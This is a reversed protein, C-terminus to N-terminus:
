SALECRICVNLRLVFARATDDPPTEIPQRLRHHRQKQQEIDHATLKEPYHVSESSTEERLGRVARVGEDKKKMM